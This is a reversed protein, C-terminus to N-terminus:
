KTFKYFSESLYAVVSEEDEDFWSYGQSTVCRHVQTKLAELDNVKRDKRTFVSSDHCKTCDEEYMEKGEELDIAISVSSFSIALLLTKLRINM